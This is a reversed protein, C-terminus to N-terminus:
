LARLAQLAREASPVQARDGPAVSVDRWAIRGERDIVFVARGSTGREADLVGYAASVKRDFDSLLAFRLGLSRAFATNAHHSDVSIGLIVADLQEFEDFHKELAPLQFSCVPSFAAPYFVLVVHKKGRFESLTVTQGEPGKLAFDPAQQGTELTSAAHM